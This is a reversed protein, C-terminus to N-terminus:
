NKRAILILHTDSEGSPLPYNVRITSHHQLQHNEFLQQIDEELYYHVTMTHGTSGTQAHSESYDKEICSLYLLGNDNMRESISAICKELDEKTLYPIIFGALVADFTRQLTHVERADLVKFTVGTVHKEAEVIMEPAVDTALISAKPLRKKFWTTVTGPGCGIELISPNESNLLSVFAKYSENYLTLDKFQEHYVEALNRWTKITNDYLESM